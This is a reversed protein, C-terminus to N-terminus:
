ADERPLLATIHDTWKFSPDAIRFGVTVTSGSDVACWKPTLNMKYYRGNHCVVASVADYQRMTPSVDTVCLGTVSANTIYGQYMSSGQAIDAEAIISVRDNQRGSYTDM